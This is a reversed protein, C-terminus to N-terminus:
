PAAVCATAAIIQDLDDELAPVLGWVNWVKGGSASAILGWDSAVFPTTMDTFVHVAPPQAMGGLTSVLNSIYVPPTGYTQPDEDSFLIIVRPIGPRWSLGLPNSPSLLDGLADMTPELSSGPGANQQSMAMSFLQADTFDKYLHPKDHWFQEDMDPATVLAYRRGHNGAYKTVWGKVAVKLNGAPSVMSGSNDFVVVIDIDNQAQPLNDIEGDCDDDVGNCTEKVPLQEGSCVSGMGICVRIGPHCARGPGLTNAPGDYCFEIPIDDSVGNCDDDLGNCTELQPQPADCADWTSHVCRQAGGGCASTCSRNPISDDAMGDCDNDLGDCVEKTPAVWGVCTIGGDDECDWTGRTCEGIGALNQPGEYCPKGCDSVPVLTPSKCSLLTFIAALFLYKM